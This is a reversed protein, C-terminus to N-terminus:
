LLQLQVPRRLHASKRLQWHFSFSEYQPPPTHGSSDQDAASTCLCRLAFRTVRPSCRCRSRRRRGLSDVAVAVSDPPPCCKWGSTAAAALKGFGSCRPGLSTGKGAGTGKGPVKGTVASSAPSGPAALRSGCGHRLVAGIHALLFSSFFTLPHPSSCVSSSSSEGMAIMACSTM